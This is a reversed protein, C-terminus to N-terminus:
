KTFEAIIGAGNRAAVRLIGESEIFHVNGDRLCSRCQSIDGVVYRLAIGYIPQSPQWPEAAEAFRTEAQAPDLIVLAYKM